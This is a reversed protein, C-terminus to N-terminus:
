KISLGSFAFISSKYSLHGYDIATLGKATGDITTMCGKENCMRGILSIYHVGDKNALDKMERDFGVVYYNLNIHTFKPISGGDKVIGYLSKQLTTTWEPAPGVIVIESAPSAHKIDRITKLLLSHVAGIKGHVTWRADLMIFKPEIRRIYSMAEDYQKDAILSVGKLPVRKAGTLQSFELGMSNALKAVGPSSAGAHSDGWLFIQNKNTSVCNARNGSLGSSDEDDMIHCIGGRVGQKWNFDIESGLSATISNFRDPFGKLYTTSFGALVTVLSVCAIATIARYSREGKASRVAKEIYHYTISALIFSSALLLLRVLVSGNGASSGGAYFYLSLIPWHWIYLPYSIKGIYTLFKDSLMRKSFISDKCFGILLASSFVPILAKYGPFADSSKFNFICYLMLAVSIISLIDPIGNVSDVTRGKNTSILYIITGASLEWLRFWPLYFASSPNIGTQRICMVLSASSILIVCPLLLRDKKCLFILIFPWVFYFQEEVGLSWIHLLPKLESSSDFYGSESYLMFNQVSLMSAIVHRGLTSLDDPMMIFCSAIFLAPIMVLLAPLIRKVRRAYFSKFSFSGSEIEKILIGSILYGSIVFFIDVGVFGGTLSGPFAHYVLVSIVAIARLGDIDPRYKISMINNM